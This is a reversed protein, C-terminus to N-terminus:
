PSRFYPGIYHISAPVFSNLYVIHSGPLKLLPLRSDTSSPNLIRDLLPTFMLAIVGEAMGVLALAM